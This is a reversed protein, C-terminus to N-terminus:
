KFNEKKGPELSSHSSSEAFSVASGGTDLNALDQHTDPRIVLELNTSNPIYKAVILCWNQNQWVMATNVKHSVLLSM